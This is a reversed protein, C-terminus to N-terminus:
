RSSCRGNGVAALFGGVCFVVLLHVYHGHERHTRKGSVGLIHLYYSFSHVLVQFQGLMLSAISLGAVLMLPYGLLTGICGSFLRVHTSPFTFIAGLVAILLVFGLLPMFGASMNPNGFWVMDTDQHCLEVFQIRGGGHAGITNYM